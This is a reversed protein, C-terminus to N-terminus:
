CYLRLRAILMSRGLLFFSDRGCIQAQGVLVDVLGALETIRFACFWAQDTARRNNGWVNGRGSDSFGGQPPKSM